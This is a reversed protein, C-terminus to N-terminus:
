LERSEISTGKAADGIFRQIQGLSAGGLSHGVGDYVAFVVSCGLKRLVGVGHEQNEFNVTRDDSGHGWFIPAKIGERASVRRKLVLSPIGATGRPRLHSRWAHFHHPPLSAIGGHQGSTSM